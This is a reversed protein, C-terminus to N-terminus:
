ARPTFAKSVLKRLRTHVPPDQRLMFADAQTPGLVPSGGFLTGDSLRVGSPVDRLLRVVDAYRTLRWVGFSTVNVPDVRRLLHLAPHPNERHAPDIPNWGRWPDDPLSDM